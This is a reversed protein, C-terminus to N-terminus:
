AKGAADGSSMLKANIQGANASICRPRLRQINKVLTAFFILGFLTTGSTEPSVSSFAVLRIANVSAVFDVGLRHPFQFEAAAPNAIL